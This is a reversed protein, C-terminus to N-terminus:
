IIVSKLKQFCCFTYNQTNGSPTIHDINFGKILKFYPAFKASLEEISYQTIAIGSCKEPGQRSFTGMILFGKEKILEKCKEIYKNQDSTKTLFHFAARDHWYDYSKTTNFEIIDSHIWKIKLAEKGIRLKARNLAISSLDLISIDLYGKELLNDALFSDGGGIDIISSSAHIKLEKLLKLSTIPVAQYWGVDTLEKTDYINEWFENRNTM